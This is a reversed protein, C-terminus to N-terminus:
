FFAASCPKGSILLDMPFDFLVGLTAGSPSRDQQQGGLPASAIRYPIGQLVLLFVVNELPATHGGRHAATGRTFVFVTSCFVRFVKHVSYM